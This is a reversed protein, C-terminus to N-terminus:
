KIIRKITKKLKYKLKENFTHKNVIEDNRYFSHPTGEEKIYTEFDIQSFGLKKLVFEKDTELLNAPYIPKELELLAENKEM